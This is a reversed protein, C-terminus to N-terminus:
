LVEKIIIVCYINSRVVIIGAIVLLWEVPSSTDSGSFWSSFELCFADTELWFELTSPFEVDVLSDEGASLVGDEEIPIFTLHSTDGSEAQRDTNWDALCQTIQDCSPPNNSDSHNVKIKTRGVYSGDNRRVNYHAKLDTNLGIQRIYQYEKLTGETAIYNYTVKLDHAM